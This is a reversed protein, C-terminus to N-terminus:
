DKKWKIKKEKKFNKCSQSQKSKGGTLTLFRLMDDTPPYLFSTFVWISQGNTKSGLITSFVVLANFLMKSHLKCYNTM